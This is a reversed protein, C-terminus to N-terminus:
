PAALHLPHDHPEVPILLRRAAEAEDLEVVPLAGLVGQAEDATALEVLADNADTLGQGRAGPAHADGEGGAGGGGNSVIRTM